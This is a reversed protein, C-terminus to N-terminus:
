NGLHRPFSKLTIHFFRLFTNMIERPLERYRVAHIQFVSATDSPSNTWSWPLREGRM